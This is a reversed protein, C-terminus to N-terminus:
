REPETQKAAQLLDLIQQLDFNELKQKLLAALTPQEPTVQEILATMQTNDLQITAQHLQDLWAAPLAQLAAIADFSSLTAEANVGIEDAEAYLYKVGLYDAMKELLEEEQFPKRMFDNCGIALAKGEDEEFVNATLAIIVTPTLTPTQLERHRIQQTAEYGDLIPMRMDMWILQPQWTEWLSIAEQGNQAVQVEFGISRLLQVLLRRNTESDEVVLIRYTPQGPALGIIPRPLAATDVCVVEALKVPISFRFSSGVALTSTVTLEGGMLQVFQRSISLGLGTGEQSTQRTKSQVFPEFLSEIEEPSIGIGTDKVTFILTLPLPSSSLPSSLVQEDGIGEVAVHLLVKGKPTFKIANGLLNILVQRLKNEDTEIYQPVAYTHDVALQLGKEMARVRFMEELTDLMTYLDFCNATFTTRGAEIKSMELIDNILNLLHKGSRNIISLQMRKETALSSDRSMLQTFGLIANLPTRLEHSMNALFASKARNAAEAAQMAQQLNLTREEVRHELEANIQRLEQELQKRETIDQAAGIYQTVRGAADRKFVSDRSYFWRWEGNAHRVRYELELDEGDAATALAQQHHAIKEIDEPHMLTPLLNHEIAQVEAPSYGLLESISRNNYRNCNSILDYIYLAAPTKDAISQSFQQAEYLQIEAQKRDTIDYVTGVVRYVRGEDNILPNYTSLMWCPQGKFILREEFTISHKAALCQAYRQLIETADEAAFIESISKGAIDESSKGMLKAAVPNWGVYHLQNDPLVDAVFIPQSVGEYISRLFQEQERLQAEARKRERLDVDICYMEREGNLSTLMLHSSYVEIAEGAKNRLRLEGDPFPGGKGAIWNEIVPLVQAGMEEPIILEEVRKGMAEARTYGYLAECAANWFIVRRDKDYGQIPNLTAEFLTRFRDESERLAQEAQKRDTIDSIVGILQREATSLGPPIIGWVAVWRIEGDLRHIRYEINYPAGTEFTHAISQQVREADEPHLQALFAARSGSFSGPAFGFIEEARDSWILQDTKLNCSWTGMQAADLALQLRLREAQLDQTRQQVRQELKENLQQIAKLVQLREIEAAVRAGFIKLLVEAREPHRISTRNFICLVGIAEGASNHLAIGFYSDAGLSALHSDLPFEAQVNSPCYYYGAQLARECPTHPLLYTLKSQIKDAYFALSQLHQGVQRTVLVHSVNLATAIQQTLVPFFDEGTVSATGEVLSQLALEARKRDSIDRGEGLIQYLNGAEDFLPKLSAALDMVSGDRGRVQFEFQCFEGKAAIAMEQQFQLKSGPLDKFWLTEWSLQGVIDEQSVGAFQLATENIALFHGTPTFLGIFQFASNFISRFRTESERLAEEARKRDSIDTIMGLAGAYQGEDDLIPNTSVMTWVNSGNRHQFKFDHQQAVGQQRRELNETAIAIGAADMFQFISKGIMEDPRYGLMEAMKPNVFTTKDEPDIIWIGENATEVIRRYQAESEKLAEEARKRASIDTVQVLNLSKGAVTIQRIAINGWFFKGQLSVYEIECSWFGQTNLESSFQQVVETSFQNRHLRHGEINILDQKSAAEFMVVARHNCDLILRTHPDVLFLADASENFIAERLDHSRSIELEIQKRYTIDVDIGDIIVDGNAEQHLQARTAIWKVEGSPLVYRVEEQFANNREAIASKLAQEYISRDDPHIMALNIGPDAKFREPEIELLTRYGESVFPCSYRGDDHYVFRFVGGPINAAIATLQAEREQLQIEARKRDTIDIQIGHMGIPNGQENQVIQGINNLWRVSGDALLVRYELNLEGMTEVVSAIYADVQKRNDPHVATLWTDYDTVVSGPEYGMLRFNEDSWYTRNTIVDWEWVGARAASLAMSLFRESEKLAAETQKRATIDQANGVIQTVRGDAGRKFVTDRSFFWRWEGSKHQMRYEFEAIAGDSLTTLKAFHQVARVADDPHMLNEIAQDIREIVEESTYGLFSSVERNVYLNRQQVLDYIYIVNPSSDAIQQIFQQSEQLALEAEKRDSINRVMCLVQDHRYPVMRVEEYQIRNGFQLQQEYMQMKGTELTKLMTSLNAAAADPPLVDTVHMGVDNVTKLIVEGNFRNPSIREYIGDVNIVAMMDPIASLIARNQEESQRLAVEAQKRETVEFRISMYQFPQGDDDVFPVIATDVWYKSGNKARNKIEGKWIQGTSITQWLDQFFSRPHYGSNVLQHTKGLLEERSYQSIECFRDNVHVIKGQADTTAVIAAQDLAFELDSLRKLIQQQEAEAQKRQTINAVFGILQSPNGDDDLLIENNDQVWIYSGDQRRLRYELMQFPQKTVLALKLAAQFQPRDDPHILALWFKVSQDDLTAVPHGLIKTADGRWTTLDVKVDYEYLVQNSARGATEYCNRWRTVDALTEFAQTQTQKLDNIDVCSGIYGVFQQGDVFQPRGNNLIWRYEGTAHRLRYEISFPERAHFAALFTNMCRQFDDPHVGEAWGNGLEQARLRGTFNLWTKNFYTCQANTDAIWILMPAIDIALQFLSETPQQTEPAATTAAKSPPQVHQNLQNLQNLVATFGRGVSELLSRIQDKM